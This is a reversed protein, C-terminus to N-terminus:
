ARAAHAERVGVPTAVRGLSSLAFHIIIAMVVAPVAGNLLAAYDQEALASAVLAGYGGVGFFGAVMATGVSIVASRRIGDMIKDTALPLDILRIRAFGRLGQVIASEKLTSPIGAIGLYTAAIIPLLGYLVMILSVPGPGVQNFAAAAIALIAVFPAIKFFGTCAAILKALGPTSSALIGLPIGILISALVTLLVLALHQQTRKLLSNGDIVPFNAKAVPPEVALAPPPAPVDAVVPSSAIAAVPVSRSSMLFDSVTNPVNGNGSEVRSKLKVIASESLVNDLLKLRRYTDPFRTAFDARHLLVLDYRGFAGIDDNLLRLKHKEILINTPAMDVVDVSAEALAKDLSFSDFEKYLQTPTIVGNQELQAFGAPDRLFDTSFGFRVANSGKLKSIARLQLQDAVRASIALAYPRRSGLAVSAMLGLPALSQNLEDLKPTANQKLLSQAIEATTAPFLDLAGTKLSSAIEELEGPLLQRSANVQNSAAVTQVIIEAIVNSEVSVGAGVRLTPKEVASAAYASSTLWICVLLSLTVPYKNYAMPIM